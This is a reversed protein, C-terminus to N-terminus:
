RRRGGIVADDDDDGEDDDKDNDRYRGGVDCIVDLPRSFHLAVIFRRFGFKFVVCVVKRHLFEFRSRFNVIIIFSQYSNSSIIHLIRIM